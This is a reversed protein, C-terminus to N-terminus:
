DATSSPRTTVKRVIGLFMAALLGIGAPVYAGGISFGGIICFGLFVVTAAALEEIAQRWAAWTAWAALLVPIVLPTAGAGSIDSFSRYAFRQGIRAGAPSMAWEAVSYRVPTTWIRVGVVVCWVLGTAACITSLWPLRKMIKNGRAQWGLQRQDYGLRAAFSVLQSESVDFRCANPMHPM